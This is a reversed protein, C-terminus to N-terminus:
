GGCNSSSFEFIVEPAGFLLLRCGFFRFCRLPEFKHTLPSSFRLAFCCRTPDTSCLLCKSPARSLTPRVTNRSKSLRRGQSSYINKYPHAASILCHSSWVTVEFLFIRVIIAASATPTALGCLLPWGLTQLQRLSIVAKTFIQPSPSM